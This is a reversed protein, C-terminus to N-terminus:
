LPIGPQCPIHRRRAPDLHNLILEIVGRDYILATHGVVSRPCVAQVVVNTVNPAAPLLANRYPTVFEDHTSAIAVYQVRPDTQRLQTYTRPDAFENCGPCPGELLKRMGPIEVTALGSVTPYGSVVGGLSIARAVKAAGGHHKIYISQVTGGLSHGIVDVKTAGTQARVRDVLAGLQRASVSMRDLNGFPGGPPLQGTTLTFVCYGENALRPALAQWSNNQNAMFGHVLIVPRPHVAGRCSPRNAGPPPTDAALSGLAFASAFDYNVPFHPRADALGPSGAAVLAVAALAGAAWRRRNLRRRIM